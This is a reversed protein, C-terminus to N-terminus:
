PLVEFLRKIKENFVARTALEMSLYYARHRELCARVDAVSRADRLENAVQTSEEIASLDDSLTRIYDPQAV